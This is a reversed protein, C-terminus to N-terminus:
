FVGEFIYFIFTKTTFYERIIRINVQPLPLLHSAPFTIALILKKIICTLKVSITQEKVWNASKACNALFNVGAGLYLSQTLIWGWGTDLQQTLVKSYITRCYCLTQNHKIVHNRTTSCFTKIAIISMVDVDGYPVLLFVFMCNTLKWVTEHWLKLHVTNYNCSKWLNDGVKM